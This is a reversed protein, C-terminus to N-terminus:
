DRGYVGANIFCCYDGLQKLKVKVSQDWKDNHNLAIFKMAENYDRLIQYGFKYKLANRYSQSAQSTAPFTEGEQGHEQLTEM